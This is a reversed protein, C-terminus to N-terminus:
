KSAVSDLRWFRSRNGPLSGPSCWRVLGAGVVGRVEFAVDFGRVEAEDAPSGSVPSSDGRVRAIRMMMSHRCSM